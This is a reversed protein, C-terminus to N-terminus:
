FFDECSVPFSSHAPTEKIIFICASHMFGFTVNVNCGASTYELSIQSFKLFVKSFVNQLVDAFLQEQLTNNTFQWIMTMDYDNTLTKTLGTVITKTATLNM